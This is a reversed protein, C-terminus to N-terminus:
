VHKFDGSLCPISCDHLVRNAAVVSSYIGPRLPLSSHPSTFFFTGGNARRGTCLEVTRCNERLVILPQELFLGRRMLCARPSCFATKEPEVPLKKPSFFCPFTTLAYQSLGNLRIKTMQPSTTPTTNVTKREPTHRWTRM